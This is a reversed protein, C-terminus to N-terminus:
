SKVKKSPIEEDVPKNNTVAVAAERGDVTFVTNGTVYLRPLRTSLSTGVEYPITGITRAMGTVSNPSTYDSTYIYFPTEITTDDKVVVTIADMSVRGVLRQEEGDMDTLIGKGSLLRNYGDAYGLSFTAITEENDLVYTQDYGVHRGPLLRKVMSPHAVWCLAPRLGFDEIIQATKKTSDPALGYLCIGPRIFDLDTAVGRIIAASNAAHLKIGRNRYPKVAALFTDLQQQTFKDDDWSQAFHSMLSHIPVGLDDCLKIIGPLEESQCGNRSMGSDVKIAVAPLPIQVPAPWLAWQKLFAESTVTPTMQYQRMVAIEEEVCNGFVQIFGQVGAQRLEQGEVASAVAFHQVGNSYLYRALAVSGHGYANGKIVAIVDAASPKSTIFFPM